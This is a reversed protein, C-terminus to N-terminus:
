EGVLELLTAARLAKDEGAPIASREVRGAEGGAGACGPCSGAEFRKAKM